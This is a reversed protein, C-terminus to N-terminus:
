ISKYETDSYKFLTNNNDEFNKLASVLINNCQEPRLQWRHLPAKYRNELPLHLQTHLCRKDKSRTIVVCRTIPRLGIALARPLTLSAGNGANWASIVPRKETSPFSKHQFVNMPASSVM